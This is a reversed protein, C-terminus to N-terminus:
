APAGAPGADEVMFITPSTTAHNVTMTGSKVSASLKVTHAGSTTTFSTALVAMRDNYAAATQIGLSTTGIVTGDLLVQIQANEVTTAHILDAQATVKYLRNAVATFTVTANTIDTASTGVGSQASTTLKVYGYGSTGGATATVVGWAMNWPPVWGTTTTTYLKLADANKDYVAMGERRTSSDPYDASSDCSIVVQKQVYDILNAATLVEGDVWGRYKNAM